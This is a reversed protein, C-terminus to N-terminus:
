GVPKDSTEPLREVNTLPAQEKAEEERGERSCPREQEAYSREPGNPSGGDQPQLVRRDTRCRRVLSVRRSFRTQM